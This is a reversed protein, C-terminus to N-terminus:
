EGRGQLPAYEQGAALAARVEFRVLFGQEAAEEASFVLRVNSVGPIEALEVLWSAVAPHDFTLGQLVLEGNKSLALNTLWVNQPIHSGLASLTDRWPLPLGMAIKLLGAQREIRNKMQLYPAFVAEEAEVALRVREKVFVQRKLQLTLSFFLAFSLGLLLAVAGVLKFAKLKNVRAKMEARMEPPLLNVKIM